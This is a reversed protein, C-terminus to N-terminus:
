GLARLYRWSRQLGAPRILALLVVFAAGGLVVAPVAPLLLGPVMFAAVAIAAVVTAARMLGVLTPWAAHLDVLMALVGLATTFALAVALGYLGASPDWFNTKMQHPARPFSGPAYAQGRELLCVKQSAEALRCAMVSGGFGSGVIVADFHESM